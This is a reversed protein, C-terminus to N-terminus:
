EAGVADCFSFNSTLQGGRARCERARVMSANNHGCASRFFSRNSMGCFLQSLFTFSNTFRTRAHKVCALITECKRFCRTSTKCWNNTYSVSRAVM